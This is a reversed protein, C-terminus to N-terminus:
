RRIGASRAEEVSPQIRETIKGKTDIKFHEGDVTVIARGSKFDRAADFWRASMINGQGNVYNCKGKLDEGDSQGARIVAWGDHFDRAFSAWDESVLRANEEDLHNYEAGNRIWRYGESNMGCADFWVPSLPGTGPRIFNHKGAADTAYAVRPSDSRQLLAYGESRLEGDAAALYYLGEQITIFLGPSIEERLLDEPLKGLDFGADAWRNRIWGRINGAYKRLDPDALAMRGIALIRDAYAVLDDGPGEPGELRYDMSGALRAWPSFYSELEKEIFQVDKETLGPKGRELENVGSYFTAVSARVRNRLDLLANGDLDRTLEYLFGRDLVDGGVTLETFLLNEAMTVPDKMPSKEKDAM